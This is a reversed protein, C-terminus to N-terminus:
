PGCGGGIGPMPYLGLGGLSWTGGLLPKTGGMPWTGGLLPIIGRPPFGGKVKLALLGDPELAGAPVLMMGHPFGSTSVNVDHKLMTSM